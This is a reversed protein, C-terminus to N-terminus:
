LRKVAPGPLAPPIGVARQGSIGALDQGDPPANGCCGGLRAYRRCPVRDTRVPEGIQLATEIGM